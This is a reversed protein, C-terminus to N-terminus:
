YTFHDKSGCSIFLGCVLRCRSRNLSKAPSVVTVSRGVSVSSPRYCYAADVYAVYYQSAAKYYYSLM